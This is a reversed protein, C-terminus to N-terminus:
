AKDKANRRVEKMKRRHKQARVRNKCVDSCYKQGDRTVSFKNCCHPNECVKISTFRKCFEAFRSKDNDSVHCKGFNFCVGCTKMFEGGTTGAAGAVIGGGAAGM